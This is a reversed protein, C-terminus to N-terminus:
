AHNSTEPLRLTRSYAIRYGTIVFCTLGTFNDIFKNSPRLRDPNNAIRIVMTRILATSSYKM